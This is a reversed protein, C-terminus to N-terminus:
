YNVYNFVVPKVDNHIPAFQFGKSQYYEIIKPLAAVTYSKGASDHMLLIVRSKNESSQVTNSYVSAASVGQGADGSSANWDYYTFGRRIMEAIIEQYNRLSYRNISGGPFRFVSPKEGTIEYILEYTLYFDHLYNEVSSYIKDYVHSYTHIGISHGEESMRKLLNPQAKGEKGIIFFTAQINYHKLIELIEETRKSPGDDFTLYVTNPSEDKPSSLVAQMDPYLKQYEIPSSEPLAPYHDLQVPTGQSELGNLREEYQKNIVALRISTASLGLIILITVTLILHKFFKVSGLYMAREKQIEGIL